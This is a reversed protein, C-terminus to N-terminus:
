TTKANGIGCEPPQPTAKMPRLQVQQLAADQTLLMKLVFAHGMIKDPCNLVETLTMMDTDHRYGDFDRLVIVDKTEYFEVLKLWGPTKQVAEAYLPAYIRKRADIYGLCDGDWFSYEPKAGRGMPYRHPSDDSWGKRAWEFYEPTPGGNADTHCKYVKCHQWCNEMVKGVEGAYLECPGLHFPSLDTEWNNKAKSTTNVVVGRGPGAEAVIKNAEAIGRMGMVYVTATM